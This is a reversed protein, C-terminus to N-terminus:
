LGLLNAYSKYDQSLKKKRRDTGKVEVPLCMELLRSYTRQKQIDAPHKLEEGTLNTTVILPLGAMYRSDVIIQVVENMYETNREAALDDVILLKFRNLGDIYNQKDNSKGFLTNAIRSFNTMLCPYGKDILANAVCASAFTKGTGVSGYLLLGKGNKFMDPFHDVYRQMIETVKPNKRDDKEFTWKLLENDQFGMCRLDKILEDKKRKEEEAKIREAKCKCICYRIDVQGAKFPNNVRCQKATNCKGCYLLGDKTYDGEVPGNAEEARKAM